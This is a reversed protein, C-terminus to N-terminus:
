SHVNAYLLVLCETGQVDELRCPQVAIMLLLRRLGAGCTGTRMVESSGSTFIKRVHTSANINGYVTELGNCSPMSARTGPPSRKLDPMAPYM